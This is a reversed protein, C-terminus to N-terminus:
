IIVMSIKKIRQFMMKIQKQTTMMIMMKMRLGNIKGGLCNGNLNKNKTQIRRKRKRIKNRKIM